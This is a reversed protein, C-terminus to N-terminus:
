VCDASTISARSQFMETTSQANPVIAKDAIVPAHPPHAPRNDDGPTSPNPPADHILPNPQM